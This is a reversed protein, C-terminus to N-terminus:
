ATIPEIVLHFNATHLAKGGHTLCLEFLGIGAADTMNRDGTVTVHTGSLSASASYRGGGPKTGEIKATTGSEIVFEGMSSYLNFVLTFNADNQNLHIEMPSDDPTVDLWYTHTIM